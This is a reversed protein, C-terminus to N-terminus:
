NNLAYAKFEKEEAARIQAAKANILEPYKTQLKRRARVISAFSPVGLERHHELVTELSMETTVFNKLVELVLIFDDTRTEPRDILANHVLKQVEMIRAM